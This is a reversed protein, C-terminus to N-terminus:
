NIINYHGSVILISKEWCDFLKQQGFLSIFKNLVGFYLNKDLRNSFKERSKSCNSWVWMLIWTNDVSPYGSVSFIMQVGGFSSYLHNKWNKFIIRMWVFTSFQYIVNKVTLISLILSPYYLINALGVLVRKSGFTLVHKTWTFVLQWRSIEHQLNQGWKLGFFTNIVIKATQQVANLRLHCWIRDSIALDCKETRAVAPNTWSKRSRSWYIKLLINYFM